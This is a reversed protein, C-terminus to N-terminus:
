HISAALLKADELDSVKALLMESRNPFENSPAKDIIPHDTPVAIVNPTNYIDVYTNYDAGGVVVAEDNGATARGLIKAEVILDEVDHPVEVPCALRNRRETVPRM